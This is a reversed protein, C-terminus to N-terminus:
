DRARSLVKRGPSAPHRPTEGCARACLKNERTIHPDRFAVACLAYRQSWYCRATVSKASTRSNDDVQRAWHITQARKPSEVYSDAQREGAGSYPKGRCMLM